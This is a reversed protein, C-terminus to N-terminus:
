TKMLNYVGWITADVVSAAVFYYFKSIPLGCFFLVLGYIVPSILLLYGYLLIAFEPSFRSPLSGKRFQLPIIRGQVLWPMVLGLISLFIAGIELKRLSDASISAPPVGAEKVLNATILFSLMYTVFAILFIVKKRKTVM